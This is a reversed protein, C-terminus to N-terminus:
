SAVELPLGADKWESKGGSFVAVRAYGMEELKRAAIHSNQCTPGACYLVLDRSRDPLAEAAAQEFGDLPLNTAGPLHGSAFYAPPLVEVVIPRRPAELRTKLDQLTIVTSM